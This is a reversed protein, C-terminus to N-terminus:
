PFELDLTILIGLVVGLSTGISTGIGIFLGINNQNADNKEKEM